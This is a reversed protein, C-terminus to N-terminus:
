AANASPVSHSMTWTKSPTSSSAQRAVHTSPFAIADGCFTKGRGRRDAAQNTRAADLEESVARREDASM